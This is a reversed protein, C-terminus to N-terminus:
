NNGSQQWRRYNKLQKVAVKRVAALSADILENQKEDKAYLALAGLHIGMSVVAAEMFALANRPGFGSETGADLVQLAVKAAQRGLELIEDDTWM